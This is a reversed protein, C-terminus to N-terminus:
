LAMRFCSLPASSVSGIGCHQFVNIRFTIAQRTVKIVLFNM